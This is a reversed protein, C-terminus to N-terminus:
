EKFSYNEVTGVKTAFFYQIGTLLAEVLNTNPIVYDAPFEHEPSFDMVEDTPVFGFIKGANQKVVEAYDAPVTDKQEDATGTGYIIYKDGTDPNVYVPVHLDTTYGSKRPPIILLPDHPTATM